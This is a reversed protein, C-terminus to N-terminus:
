AGRALRHEVGQLTAAFRTSPCGAAVERADSITDVDRLEDLETWSLGLSRLRLRQERATTDVSMPVGTFLGSRGTRLGISWYGGDAAPGLVADVGPALLAAVADALQLPTVQPTDMGLVLVPGGLDDVAGQLRDGLDGRRQAVVPLDLPLWGGGDGDLVVVARTGDTALVAEITDELAARALLAAEAPTCPPCLRTKVRGAVPAKALVAVTVTPPQGHATATAASM